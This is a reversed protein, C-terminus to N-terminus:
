PGNRPEFKKPKARLSAWIREPVLSAMGLWCDPGMRVKAFGDMNTKYWQDFWPKERWVVLEENLRERTQSDEVGAWELGRNNYGSRFWQITAECGESGVQQRRTDVWELFERMQALEAKPDVNPLSLLQALPVTGRTIFTDPWGTERGEVFSFVLKLGKNALPRFFFEQHRNNRLMQTLWAKQADPTKPYRPGMFELLVQHQDDVMDLWNLAGGDRPDLPISDLTAATM